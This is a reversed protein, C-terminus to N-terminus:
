SDKTIDDGFIFVGPLGGTHLFIITEDKTINGRSIEGILGAMAKGTYIPDLIVSETKAVLKLAEICEPTPVGYGPGIYNHSINIDDRDVKLPLNLLDAPKDLVGPRFLYQDITPNDMVVIGTFKWPLNLNKAALALGGLSRGAVGVIHIKSLGLAEVQNAIELAAQVYAIVGSFYTVEQDPVLYPIHGELQLKDALERGYNTSTDLDVDELFHMEAGLLHDLLMNGQFERGLADRLVVIYRMGIKNCAAATMRANNSHWQMVNIYVDCGKNKADGMLYESHRAKNGGFALGTCDDRKVFIRCGDLHDSLRLCEELPTPVNALPVRPISNLADQLVEKDVM